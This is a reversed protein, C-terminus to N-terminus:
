LGFVSLLPGISEPEPILIFEGAIVPRDKEFGTQVYFVDQDPPVDMLALFASQATGTSLTPVSPILNIGTLSTLATLYAGGIINGVEKITSELISAFMESGDPEMGTFISVFSLAQQEDFLVVIQCPAEGGVNVNMHIASVLRGPKAVRDALGAFALIEVTPTGIQVPENLMESLATAAHGAGINGVEKMAEIQMESLDLAAM